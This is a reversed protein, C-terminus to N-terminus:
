GLSIVTSNLFYRPINSAFLVKRYNELTPMKPLWVPPVTYLESLTKISSLTMWAFPFLCVIILLIVGVLLAIRVPWSVKKM